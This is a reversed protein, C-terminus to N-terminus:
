YSTSSKTTSSWPRAASYAACSFRKKLIRLGSTGLITVALAMWSIASIVQGIEFSLPEYKFTVKHEGRDLVVARVVGDARYVPSRQGDVYAVWGPYYTDTLLLIGANEAYVHVVVQEPQYDVIEAFSNDTMPARELDHLDFDSDSLRGELVVSTGPDFQRSKLIAEVEDPSRATQFRHVVFARSFAGPNEYVKATGDSVGWWRGLVLPFYDSSVAFAMAGNSPEENVYLVGGIAERVLSAKSSYCRIPSYEASYTWVGLVNSSNAEPFRLTLQFQKGASDHVPKFNFLTVPWNDYISGAELVVERHSDAEYPIADITLVISGHRVAGYTGLQIAISTLNDMPAMFTQRLTADSRDLPVLIDGGLIEPAYNPNTFDIVIYKLGVFDYFIINKQLEAVASGCRLWENSTMSAELFGTDLHQKAFRHFSDVNFAGFVGVNALGFVGGYSPPLFGDFTYIRSFGVKEQLFSVYPAERFPDTRESLGYPSSAAVANVAVLAVITVLLASRRLHTGHRFAHESACRGVITSSRPLFYLALVVLAFVASLTLFSTLFAWEYPIGRPIYLAMELLVVGMLPAAIRRDELLRVSLFAIVFLFVFAEMSEWAAYRLSLAGPSSILCLSLLVVCTVGLAVMTARKSTDHVLLKEFGIAAVVSQSFIWVPGLYRPFVMVDLVPLYGIWQIPPVGFVKLLSVAAIALFFLAFRDTDNSARGKLLSVIVLFCLYLSCVGVYGGMLAWPLGGSGIGGFFYPVYHIIASQVPLAVVGFGSGRGAFSYLLYEFVPLIFFASLCFGTIFGLFLRFSKALITRLGLGFVLFVYYFLVLIFQLIISEIHAGLLSVMVAFGVLCVDSVKQRTVLRDVALLLLPTFIIVNLHDMGVYWTFAGSLMYLISGLFAGEGSIKRNRLFAYTVLGALWMRVLMPVDWFEAPLIYLLGVPAYASVTTDAALPAGAAEYPNWLPWRGQWFSQMVIRHLPLAVTAQAAPDITPLLAPRRGHYDYPGSPTVGFEFVAPSLTYGMFLMLYCLGLIAALAVSVGLYERNRLQRVVTKASGAITMRCAGRGAITM